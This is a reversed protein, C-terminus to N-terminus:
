VRPRGCLGGREAGRPCNRKLWEEVPLLPRRVLVHRLRENANGDPARGHRDATYQHWRSPHRCQGVAWAAQHGRHHADELLWRVQEEATRRAAGLHALLGWAFLLGHSSALGDQVHERAALWDQRAVFNGLDRSTPTPLRILNAIVVDDYGLLGAARHVAARTRDGSTTPPNLLVACLQGTM